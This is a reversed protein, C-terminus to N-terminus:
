PTFLSFMNFADVMQHVEFMWLDILNLKCHGHLQDITFHKNTSPFASKISSRFLEKFNFMTSVNFAEQSQHTVIAVFIGGIAQFSCLQHRKSFQVSSCASKEIFFFGGSYLMTSTNNDTQHINSDFCFFMVLMM